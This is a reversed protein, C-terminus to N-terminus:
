VKERHFWPRLRVTFRAMKRRAYHDPIFIQIGANAGHIHVFADELTDDSAAFQLNPLEFWEAKGFQEGFRDAIDTM